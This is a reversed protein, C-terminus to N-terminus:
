WPEDATPGYVSPLKGGALRLYITLQGRHHVMDMLTTWLVDAKRVNGPTKPAVFWGMMSNYDTDSMKRVREINTKVAAEYAAIIEEMSKPAPNHSNSFEVKGKLAMDVLDQEAHFVWALDRASRLKDAPKLDLKDQPFARLVKLTTQFEREWSQIFMDKETM